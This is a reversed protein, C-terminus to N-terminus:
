SMYGGQLWGKVQGETRDCHVPLYPVSQKAKRIILGRILEWNKLSKLYSLMRPTDERLKIVEITASDVAQVLVFYRM